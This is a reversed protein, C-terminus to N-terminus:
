KPRQWGSRCDGPDGRTCRSPSTRSIPFDAGAGPPCEQVDLVVGGRKGEPAKINLFVERGVMLTAIKEKTAESALLTGQVRGDRMVTIRDSIALVEQLKHSIFIM